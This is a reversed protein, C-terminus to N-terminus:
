TKELGTFPDVAKWAPLLKVEVGEENGRELLFRMSKHFNDAYWPFPVLPRDLPKWFDDWHIPIVRRAGVTTVVESWYKDRYDDSQRGLQGIGLFVVDAQRGKLGDKVFGASGQVLMKTAGHAILLSYSGGEKYCSWYAPPKLPAEIQGKPALVSPVHDSVIPTIQFQGINITEDGAIITIRDPPFDSGLAVYATSESGILQAGTKLAVIPADMVHDYHSHVVIVADLSKIGARELCHNIVQPDSKLRTTLFRLKSPRSFFGDTLIKNKGDGFLLSSVGLFTVRFDGGTELLDPFMQDAYPRM